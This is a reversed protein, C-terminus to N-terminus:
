DLMFTRPEGVRVVLFNKRIRHLAVEDDTHVEYWSSDFAYIIIWPSVEDSSRYGAFIGWIVQRTRNAVDQLELCSIRLGSRTLKELETGGEGTAEFYDEGEFHEAKAVQWQSSAALNGLAALVDKLDFTLASHPGADHIELVKM